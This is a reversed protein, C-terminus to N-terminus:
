AHCQTKGARWVAGGEDVKCIYCGNYVDPALEPWQALEMGFREGEMRVINKTIPRFSVPVQRAVGVNAQEASTALLQLITEHPLGAVSNGEIFAIRDGIALGSFWDHIFHSKFKKISSELRTECGAGTPARTCFADCILIKPVM